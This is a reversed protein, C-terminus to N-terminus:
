QCSQEGNTATHWVKPQGRGPATTSAVAGRARLMYLRKDLARRSLGFHRALDDAISPGATRIRALLEDATLAM